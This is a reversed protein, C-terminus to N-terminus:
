DPSASFILYSFTIISLAFEAEEIILLETSLQGSNCKTFRPTSCFKDVYGV